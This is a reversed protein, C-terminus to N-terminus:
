QKNDPKKFYDKPFASLKKYDWPVRKPPFRGARYDAFVQQIEKDSNMVFPGHWAVKESVYM